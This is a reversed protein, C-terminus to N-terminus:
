VPSRVIASVPVDAAIMLASGPGSPAPNGLLPSLGAATMIPATYISASAINEGPSGAPAIYPVTGTTIGSSAVVAAIPAFSGAPLNNSGSNQTPLWQKLGVRVSVSVPDGVDSTQKDITGISTIVFYGRHVGNGFVLARAQHDSAAELLAELQAAPNTFSVHFLVDLTVTELEDAIWQLQSTDEVVRHEAYHWNREATIQEPGALTEFVIDGLVAFM